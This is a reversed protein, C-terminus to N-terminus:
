QHKKLTITDLLNRFYWVLLKRNRYMLRLYFINASLDKAYRGFILLRERYHQNNMNAGVGEIEMRSLVLETQKYRIPHRTLRLWFDWDAVVRLREDYCGHQLFLSRKILTSQHPLGDMLINKLSFKKIPLRLEDIPGEREVRICCSLIDTDDAL